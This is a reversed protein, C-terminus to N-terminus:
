MVQPLSTGGWVIPHFETVGVSALEEPTFGDANVLHFGTRVSIRAVDVPRDSEIEVGMWFERARGGACIRGAQFIFRSRM